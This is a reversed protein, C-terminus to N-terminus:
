FSQSTNSQSHTLMFRPGTQPDLQFILQEVKFVQGRRGPQAVTTAQSDSALTALLAPSVIQLAALCTSSSAM